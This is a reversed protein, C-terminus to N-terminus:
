QSNPQNQCRSSLRLSYPPEPQAEQGPIGRVAANAFVGVTEGRGRRSVRGGRGGYGRAGRGRGRGRPSSGM